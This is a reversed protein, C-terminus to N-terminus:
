MTELGQLLRLELACIRTSFRLAFSLVWVSPGGLEGMRM